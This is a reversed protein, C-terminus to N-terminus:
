LFKSNRANPFKKQFGVQLNTPQLDETMLTIPIPGFNTQPENETEPETERKPNLWIENKTAFHSFPQRIM